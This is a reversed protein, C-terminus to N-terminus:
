HGSTGGDVALTSGTIYSAANSCLFVVAADIECQRALRGLSSMAAFEELHAAMEPIVANEVLGAAVANVRIGKERAWQHSLDRTLGILGAQSAAYASQPLVSKVLGLMSSVNVISSGRPMVRACARATLYAGVVNTDLTSRFDDAWEKDASVVQNTDAVNVLIDVRGFQAVTAEVLAHCQSDETMDTPVTLCRRGTNRVSKAASELADARLGAVVVDSGAEALARALGSGLRSGADAVVAISGTLGFQNLVSRTPLSM